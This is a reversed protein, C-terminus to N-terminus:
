KELIFEARRNSSANSSNRAGKGVANLRYEKVGRRILEAKVTDARGQSLRELVPKEEDTGLVANAYAEITVNYEKYEVSKLLKAVTDLVKKNQRKIVIPQDDFTELNPDFIIAPVDIKIRNGDKTIGVELPSNDRNPYFRFGLSVGQTLICEKNFSFNADYGVFFNWKEDYYFQLQLGTEIYPRFDQTSVNILAGTGLFPIMSFTETFPVEKAFRLGIPIMISEKEDERPFYFEFAGRFGASWLDDTQYGVDLGIGFGLGTIQDGKTLDYSPLQLKPEIGVYMAGEAAFVMPLMCLALTIALIAKKM